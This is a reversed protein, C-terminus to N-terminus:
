RPAFRAGCRYRDILAPAAAPEPAAGRCRPLAAARGGDGADGSAGGRTATNTHRRTNALTDETTVAVGVELSTRFVRNVSANLIVVEGQRVPHHFQLEDVSATVCVRNTHRAAAIAAAIDIWHMLRGGLLNGLRNTDNPLVLETMEVQSHSVTRIATPAVRAEAGMM